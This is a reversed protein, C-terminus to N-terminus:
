FRECNFSYVQGKSSVLYTFIFRGHPGINKVTTFEEGPFENNLRTIMRETSCNMCNRDLYTVAGEDSAQIRQFSHPMIYALKIRQTADM